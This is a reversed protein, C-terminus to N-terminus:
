LLLFFYYYYKLINNILMTMYTSDYLSVTKKFEKEIELSIIPFFDIRNSFSILNITLKKCEIDLICQVM